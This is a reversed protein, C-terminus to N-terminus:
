IYFRINLQMLAIVCPPTAAAKFQKQNCLFGFDRIMYIYGVYASVYAIM